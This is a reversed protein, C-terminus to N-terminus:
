DKVCRVSFGYLKNAYNRGADAADSNLSLDWAYISTDDTSGWWHGYDGISSFLGDFNHYGGPLGTFGSSNTAGSSRLWNLTGIEKMKNGAEYLGGLYDTLTTWETDRPVHWGIPAFQKRLSANTLSAADYIGAVAYWNYLKGYIAGNASDNNYYCWAGTTLAAWAAPDTVEPIPTGDRYTTVDLNKNTWVQTGITVNPLSAVPTVFSIESTVLPSTITITHTTSTACQGINPTFTYTTTNINNLAPSWTGTIGNNSTTPLGALTAGSCVAAVQTFTPTPKSTVTITMTATSACFGSAPTFTYLTTATNNMPPSWTGTIGNNSTTPLGALTAGSCVAAVQTFTPTQKPSVTILNSIQCGNSNTYTINATGANIGTVLGTSSVTVVLTNSSVWPNVLSVSASGTLQTTSGVCVSSTGTITPLAYITVTATILCGNSNSYNIITTGAAVGTVLGTTNVTAISPNSSMWINTSASINGSLQITNGVCTFSTISSTCPNSLSAGWITYVWEPRDIYPNRNNQIAYIANNRNIEKQSVPDAIHWRYLMDLSWQEFVRTNTGDLFAAGNSNLNEWSAIRNEYCTAMYFYNRAVDGKYEDAPEFVTLSPGNSAINNGIKSGNSSTYTANGVIGYAINGRLGNVKKDAPMVHFADSYMPTGSAGGFWSKPFTHERNYFQCESTGGLGQDQNGGPGTGFTFNCNTYIDWVKGDSKVDSTPYLNWLGPSYSVVTHPNIINFLQTKLSYGNSTASNYYGAPIQSYSLISFFLCFLLYPKKM